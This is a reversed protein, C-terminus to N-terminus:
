LCQVKGTQTCIVPGVTFIVQEDADGTDGAYVATIPVFDKGLTAKDVRWVADNKRCDCSRM